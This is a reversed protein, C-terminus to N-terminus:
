QMKESDFMFECSSFFPVAHPFHARAIEEMNSADLILLFSMKTNANFIVSMLVGEDEKIAGLKPIIVPKSTYCGKESWEISTKCDLDCKLLTKWMNNAKTRDTKSIWGCGWAYKYPKMRYNPNCTAWEVGFDTRYSFSSKPPNSPQLHYAKSADPLKPLVYRRIGSHPLDQSELTRLNKLEFAKRISDDRYACVDIYVSDTAPDEFTNIITQAFFSTTSYVCVVKRKDRDIVYFLTSGYRDFELKEEFKYAEYLLKWNSAGAKYPFNPVVIYNVSLGFSPVISAPAEFDCIYHGLPFIRDEDKIGFIKYTTKLFSIDFLLHVAEFKDTDFQIKPCAGSGKFLPNIDEFGLLRKPLLSVEDVEQILNFSSTCIINYAEDPFSLQDRDFNAAIRLGSVCNASSADIQGLRGRALYHSTIFNNPNDNIVKLKKLEIRKRLIKELNRALYKSRYNIETGLTTHRIDIRHLMGLGYQWRNITCNVLDGDKLYELDFLAPGSFYMNGSLWLPLQANSHVPLAIMESSEVANSFMPIYPVRADYYEPASQESINSIIEKTPFNVEERAKTGYESLPPSPPSTFPEEDSIKGSINKIKPTEHERIQQEYEM